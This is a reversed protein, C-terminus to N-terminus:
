SKCYYGRVTCYLACLLSVNGSEIHLGKSPISSIVGGVAEGPLGLSTEADMGGGIPHGSSSM